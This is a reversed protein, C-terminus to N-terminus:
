RQQWAKLWFLAVANPIEDDTMKEADVLMQRLKAMQQRDRTADPLSCNALVAPREGTPEMAGKLMDIYMQRATLPGTDVVDPTAAKYFIVEIRRQGDEVDAFNKFPNVQFAQVKHAYRRPLQYFVEALTPMFMDQKYTILERGLEVFEEPKYTSYSTLERPTGKFPDLGHLGYAMFDGTSRHTDLYMIRDLMERADQKSINDFKSLGM